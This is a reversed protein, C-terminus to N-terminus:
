NKRVSCKRSSHSSKRSSWFQSKSIRALLIILNTKSCFIIYSEPLDKYIMGHQLNDMDLVSQYFRVRKEIGQDRYTQIEVDFIREGNGDSDKVYLDLRIGKSEYQPILNKETEPYSLREIKIKLLRELLEKCLNEDKMVKCFIFNDAFTM